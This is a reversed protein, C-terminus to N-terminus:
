AAPRASRSRRPTGRRSPDRASNPSPGVIAAAILAAITASTPSVADTPTAVVFSTALTPTRAACARRAPRRGAPRRPRREQRRQRDRPQPADPLLRRRGEALEPDRRDAVQGREGLVQEDPPEALVPRRQRRPGAPDVGIRHAVRSGALDIPWSCVKSTSVDSGSAISRVSSAIASPTAERSREAPSFAPVIWTLIRSELKRVIVRCRVRASGVSRASGIQRTARSSARGSTRPRLTRRSPTVALWRPSRAAARGTRSSRTRLCAVTAPRAVAASPGGLRGVRDAAAVPIPRHGPRPQEARIERRRELAIRHLRELAPGPHAVGLQRGVVVWASDPAGGPLEVRCAVVRSVRATVPAPSGEGSPKVDFM